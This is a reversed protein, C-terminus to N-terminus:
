GCVLFIFSSLHSHTHTQADWATHATCVPVNVHRHKHTNKCGAQLTQHCCRGAKHVPSSGDARGTPFLATQCLTWDVVKSMWEAVVDESGCASWAVLWLLAIVSLLLQVTGLEMVRQHKWTMENNMDSNISNNMLWESQWFLMNLYHYFAFPGLTM